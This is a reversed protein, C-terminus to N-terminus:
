VAISKSKKRRWWYRCEKHLRNRINHMFSTSPNASKNNIVLPVHWYLKMMETNIYDSIISCMEAISYTLDCTIKQVYESISGTQSMDLQPAQTGVIAIM